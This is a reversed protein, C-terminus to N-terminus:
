APKRGRKKPAGKSMLGSWDLYMSPCDTGMRECISAVTSCLDDEIIIALKASFGDETEAPTAAIQELLPRLEEKYLLNADGFWYRLRRQWESYLVHWRTCLSLLLRDPNVAAVQPRSALAVSM